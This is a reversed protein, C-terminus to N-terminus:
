TVKLDGLKWNKDKRTAYKGKGTHLLHYKSGADEPDKYAPVRYKFDWDFYKVLLESDIKIGTDGIEVEGYIM